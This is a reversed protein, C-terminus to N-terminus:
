RDGREIEDAQREVRLMIERQAQRYGHWWDDDEDSINVGLNLGRLAEVKAARQLEAVRPVLADLVRKTLHRTSAGHQREFGVTREALNADEDTWPGATTADTMVPEGRDLPRRRRVVADLRGVAAAPSDRRRGDTSCPASGTRRLSDSQRAKVWAESPSLCATCRVSRSTM